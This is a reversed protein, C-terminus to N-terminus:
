PFLEAVLRLTLGVNDMSLELYRHNRLLILTQAAYERSVKEM